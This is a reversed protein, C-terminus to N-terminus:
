NVRKRAFVLHEPLQNISELILTPKERMLEEINYMGTLVAVTKAGAAKGARIDIVSDGIIACNEPSVGINEASRVISDPYPKPREVDAATVVERFFSCFNLCRLEDMVQKKPVHRMTILVLPLRASLFRLTEYANAIPKCTRWTEAYYTKLYNEVFRDVLLALRCGDMEESNATRIQPELLTDLPMNMEYTKAIEKVVHDDFRAVGISAFAKRVAERYAATSDVLTGDLDVFLAEM